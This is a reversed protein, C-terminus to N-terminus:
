LQSFIRQVRQQFWREMKKIDKTYKGLLPLITKFDQDIYEETLYKQLNKYKIM